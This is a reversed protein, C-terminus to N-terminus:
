ILLTVISLRPTSRKRNPVLQQEMEQEVQKRTHMCIEWSAPWTTQYNWRKSFQGYNITIWVTLPKPMTLLASTSSKRSNAPNQKKNKTKQHDQLDQYSSRQNRHRRPFWSSCWFTWLQLIVSAHSPSNQANGKKHTLLTCKHLLKLMRQCQREKPNSHFSVNEMGRAVASNKLNAPMNLTASESCCRKPKSTSLPFEM